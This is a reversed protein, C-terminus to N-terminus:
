YHCGKGKQEKFIHLAFSLTYFIYGRSGQSSRLYTTDRMYFNAYTPEANLNGITAQEVFRKAAEVESGAAVGRSGAVVGVLKTGEHEFHEAPAAEEFSSHLNREVERCDELWPNDNDGEDTYDGSTNEEELDYDFKQALKYM